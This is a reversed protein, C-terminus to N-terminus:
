IAGDAYGNSPINNKPFRKFFSKIEDIQVYINISPNIQLLETLGGAHDHHNHSIIVSKITSININFQKINNILINGNGGTDFLSYNETFYNYILVSFGFGTLFGSKPCKDDYVIYIEFSQKLQRM